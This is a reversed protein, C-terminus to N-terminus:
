LMARWGEHGPRILGPEALLGFSKGVIALARFTYLMSEGSVMPADPEAEGPVTRVLVSFGHARVFAM